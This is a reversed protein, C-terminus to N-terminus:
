VNTTRTNEEKQNENKKKEFANSPSITGDNSLHSVYSFFDVVILRCGNIKM